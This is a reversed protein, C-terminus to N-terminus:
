LWKIGLWVKANGGRGDFMWDFYKVGSEIGIKKMALGLSTESMDRHRNEKCWATFQKYFDSKTIYGNIEEQSTYEKIFRELFNSKSEYKIMRDEVSGENTFRRSQLLDPLILTACKLALCEYEEEPISSLIDKEESFQNPFDIIFWRRYFGITKDTTTPLNNTAIIIKAYNVEEFPNKNKYEFGILDGGTLKKLISTKSMENFNTEGMICVLKKHLRTVEFRSNLLCDLETSCCNEQGIFKKLMRIFCSKGNMGAGIFCFLRHMPYDPLLSYAMIEYLAKVNEKGVWEEFLKDMTPTEMFRDKNLAYPIPNVAFYEPTALFEKGTKIDFITDKFQIWSPEIPKPKNKRAEQKLAELIENREKSNITNATTSNSILNMIDTEDVLKWYRGDFNWVWWLKGEDYYLPQIGLFKKALDKKDFFVEIAKKFQSQEQKKDEIMEPHLYEFSMKASPSLNDMPVKVGHVNVVKEKKDM